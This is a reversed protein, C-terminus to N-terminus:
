LLGAAAASSLVMVQVRLETAPGGMSEVFGDMTEAAPLPAAAKIGM